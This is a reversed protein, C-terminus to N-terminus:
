VADFNLFFDRENGVLKSKDWPFVKHLKVLFVGELHNQCPVHADDNEAPEADFDQMDEQDRAHGFALSSIHAVIVFFFDLLRLTLVGRDVRLPLAVAEITSCADTDWTTGDIHGSIGNERNLNELSWM